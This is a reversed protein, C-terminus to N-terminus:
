WYMLARWILCLQYFCFLLATQRDLYHLSLDWSFVFARSSRFNPNMRSHSSHLFFPPRGFCLVL